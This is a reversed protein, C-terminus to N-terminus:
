FRRSEERFSKFRVQPTILSIMPLFIEIEGFQTFVLSLSSVSGSSIASDNLSWKEDM